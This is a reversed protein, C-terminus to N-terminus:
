GSSTPLPIWLPSSGGPFRGRVCERFAVYGSESHYAVVETTGIEILVYDGINKLTQTLTLFSWYRGLLLEIDKKHSVEDINIRGLM